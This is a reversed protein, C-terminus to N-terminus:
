IWGPPHENIKTRPTTPSLINGSVRWGKSLMRVRLDKAKARPTGTSASLTIKKQMDDPLGYLLTAIASTKWIGVRKRERTAKAIVAVLFIFTLFLISFPLILWNWRVSVYNEKSFAMGPIMDRSSSSRIVNTWATALREMHLTVNNPPMWPNFELELVRQDKFSALRMSPGRPMDQNATTMSPFIRAFAGVFGLATVNSIGYTASATKSYPLQMTVNEIYQVQSKNISPNFYSGFPFPGPTTDVYTDIIEEKYNAWYYSSKVTKVCWSLVCEQLTPTENRFVTDYDRSGSIVVDVIRHRIHGFRISGGFLPKLPDLLPVTRMLLAEGHRAGGISTNVPEVLYGSM